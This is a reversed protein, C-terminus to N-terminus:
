FRILKKLRIAQGIWDNVEYEYPIRRSLHAVQNAAIMDIQLQKPHRLSLDNICRIGTQIMLEIYEDSVRDLRHLDALQILRNLLSSSIGLKAALEQKNQATQCRDLM